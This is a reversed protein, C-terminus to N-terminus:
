PLGPGRTGRRLAVPALALAAALSALLLTPFLATWGFRASLAPVALGEVLAGLSGIGNVLGTATAAARQGGADQAAAGSLLADPGFLLAGVLALALTHELVGYPAIRTYGYLAASLGLLSVASLTARPVRRLRDSLTGLIIVGLVGGVEFSSSVNAAVDAPYSLTTSLYYPLWFLLAYRIFKIFFYSGGYSWLLGSRLVSRQWEAVAVREAVRAEPTDAEASNTSSALKRPLAMFVSGAAVLLLFAPGFFAARWGFRVLLYGCVGNAVV